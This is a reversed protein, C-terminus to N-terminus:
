RRTTWASREQRLIADILPLTNQRGSELSSEKASIRTFLSLLLDLRYQDTAM